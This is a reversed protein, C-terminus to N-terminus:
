ERQRVLTAPDGFILYSQHEEVSTNKEWLRLLGERQADGLRVTDNTTLRAVFGQAVWRSYDNRALITPAICGVAGGGARRLFVEALCPAAPDQYHGNECTFMGVVPYASHTLAAANQNLWVGEETWRGEAGHGFFTVLFRGSNFSNSIASRVPGAATGMNDMYTKTQAFGAANLAPVVYSDQAAKFDNTVGFTVDKNDAVLTAKTKWVAGTVIGTEWSIIKNLVATLDADSGAPIRGIAIDTLYDAGNVRAFWNDMATWQWSSPGMFCPITNATGRGLNNKPDYTGDGVLVAYKPPAQWYHFAYGLFQKIAEADAIGYSFENYIDELPAVVVSMGSLHRHKLLAYASNRLSYPCVLIYEASRSKNSLGRFFVRRVRGPRKLGTPHAVAYTRPSAADDGFSLMYGAGAAEATPNLLLEPASSDTVDAVWFAGAAAFGKVAYNRSGGTGQFELANDVSVLSRPFSLSLMSLVASDNAIGTRVQALAVPTTNTLLLESSFSISGTVSNNGDFILSGVTTGNVTLRTEHDPNIPDSSTGYLHLFAEAVSGSLRDGTWVRFTNSDQLYKNSVYAAFWHDLTADATFDSPRYVWEPAHVTTHTYNTVTETAALVSADRTAMRAGGSGFGLWYVNTRSYSSDYDQAYFIMLDASGFAGSTTVHVPVEAARNFLRLQSGVIDEAPVGAAVLDALGLGYLGRSGTEMRIRANVNSGARREAFDSKSGNM